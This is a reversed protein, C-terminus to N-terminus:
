YRLNLIHIRVFISNSHFLIYTGGDSIDHKSDTPDNDDVRNSM